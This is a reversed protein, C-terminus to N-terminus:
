RAGPFAGFRPFTRRDWAFVAYGYRGKAGPPVAPRQWEREVGLWSVARDDRWAHGNLADLVLKAANDVDFRGSTPRVGARVGAASLTGDRKFHGGPRPVVIRVVVAIDADDALRPEGHARWARVIMAEATATRAATHTRRRIKGDPGEWAAFRPREKARPPTEAFLDVISRPAGALIRFDPCWPGHRIVHTGDGADCSDAGCEVCRAITM